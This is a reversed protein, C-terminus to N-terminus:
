GGRGPHQRRPRDGRAHGFVGARLSGADARRVACEGDGAWRRPVRRHWPRLHGRVRLGQVLADHDGRDRGRIPHLDRQDPAPGQRWPARRCSRTEGRDTRRAAKPLCHGPHRRAPGGGRLHAARHGAGHGGAGTGALPFASLDPATGGGPPLPGAVLRPRTLALEANSRTSRYSEKMITSRGRMDLGLDSWTPTGRGYVNQANDYFVIVPRSMAAAPDAPRALAGLLRLAHPGMDQAEDVFIASALPNVGEPGAHDLLLKARGDYDFVDLQSRLRHKAFLDSLLDKIHWVVVREWPFPGSQGAREWSEAVCEEILGRLAKNAYVVWVVERDSPGLRAVTQALWAALVLTKGSGAVGRVLRPGGDMELGCLRQQEASLVPRMAKRQELQTGLLGPQGRRVASPEHRALPAVEKWTGRFLIRPALLGALPALYPEQMEHRSALVILYERARSLGVNLLRQWDTYSWGTSGANVTDFIVYDAEAGQQKHVTSARWEPYDNRALWERVLRAQARYPTIFLGGHAAMRPHTSFIKELLEPTRRRIWSRQGPGRQARILPLEGADEDLVYWIARPARSLAPDPTLTPRFVRETVSGADTLRGEYQFASVVARIARAMRHQATLQHIGPRSVASANLHALGSEALWTAEARQLVRALRTIPALQRPDGVLVVRSRALFSMAAVAARSILGAEDLMVTDFPAGGQDLLDVVDPSDVQRIATYATCVVVRVRPHLFAGMAEEVAIRARNIEAAIRARDEPRTARRYAARLRALLRRAERAATNLLDALGEQEFRPLDAGWGLRMVLGALPTEPSHRRLARGISLAVEDTAKNTTSVVLIREQTHALIAAVQEGVTYTKGTGPPGWLVAWSREWLEGVPGVHGAAFVNGDVGGCAAGLAGALDDRRGAHAPSHFVENLHHLFEFPQVHFRGTTPAPAGEGVDVYLHGEDDDVEVVDGRWLYEEDDLIDADDPNRSAVAGEWTWDMAALFGVDVRYLGRDNVRKISYARMPVWRSTHQHERRVASAADRLHSPDGEPLGLLHLRRTPPPHSPM